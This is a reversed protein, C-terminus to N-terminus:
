VVQPTLVFDRGAMDMLAIRGDLLQFRFVGPGPLSSGVVDRYRSMLVGGEHYIELTMLQPPEPPAVLEMFRDADLHPPLLGRAVADAESLAAAEAAESQNSMSPVM